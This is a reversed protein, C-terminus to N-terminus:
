PQADGTGFQRTRKLNPSVWERRHHETNRRQSDSDIQPQQARKTRGYSNCDDQKAEREKIAPALAGYSSRRFWSQLQCPEDLIDDDVPSCVILEDFQLREDMVSCEKWPM